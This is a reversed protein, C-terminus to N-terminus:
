VDLFQSAYAGNKSSQLIKIGFMHVSTLWSVDELLTTVVFSYNACTFKNCEPSSVKSPMQFIDLVM